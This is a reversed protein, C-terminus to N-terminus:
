CIQEIQKETTKRETDLFLGFKLTCKLTFQPSMLSPRWTIERLSYSTMFPFNQRKSMLYWQLRTWVWSKFRSKIVDSRLKMSFGYREQWLLGRIPRQGPFFSVLGRPTCPEQLYYIQLPHWAEKKKKKKKKKCRKDISSSLRSESIWFCIRSVVLLFLALKRSM